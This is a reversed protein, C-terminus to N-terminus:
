QENEKSRKVWEPLNLSAIEEESGKLYGVVWHTGDTMEAMLMKGTISLRSFLPNDRMFSGVVLDSKELEEITTFEMTEEEYGSFFAPRYEEYIM